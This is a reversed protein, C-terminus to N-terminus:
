GPCDRPAARPKLLFSQHHVLSLSPTVFRCKEVILKETKAIFEKVVTDPKLIQSLQCYSLLLEIDKTVTQGEPAGPYNVKELVSAFEPMSAAQEWLITMTPSVPNGDSDKLYLSTGLGCLVVLNQSQLIDVLSRQFRPFLEDDPLQTLPKWEGNTVSSLLKAFPPPGSDSAAVTLSSQGIPQEPANM